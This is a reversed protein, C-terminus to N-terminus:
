VFALLTKIWKLKGRTQLDYVNSRHLLPHFFEITHVHCRRIRWHGIIVYLGFSKQGFRLRQIRQSIGIWFQRPSVLVRVGVAVVGLYPNVSIIKSHRSYTRNKIFNNLLDMVRPQHKVTCEVGKDLAYHM